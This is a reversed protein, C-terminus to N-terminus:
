GKDALNTLEELIVQKLQCIESTKYLSSLFQNAEYAVPNKYCKMEIRGLIDNGYAFNMCVSNSDSKYQQM